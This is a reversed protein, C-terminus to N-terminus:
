LKGSCAIPLSERVSLPGFAVRLVNTALSHFFGRALCSSLDLFILLWMVARTVLDTMAVVAAAM